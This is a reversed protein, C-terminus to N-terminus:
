AIHLLDFHVTTLHIRMRTVNGFTSISRKSRYEISSLAMVEYAMVVYATVIYTVVIYAVVMYAMLIYAMVIYAM